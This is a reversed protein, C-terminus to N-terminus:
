QEIFEVSDVEIKDMKVLLCSQAPMAADGVGSRKEIKVSVSVKKGEVTIKKLSYNRGPYIEPHIYLLLMENAFNVAIANEKIIEGFAKDDAIIFTRTLPATEEYIYSESQEDNEDYSENPYYAKVRNERLFDDLIWQEANNFLEANYTNGCGAVGLLCCILVVIGAIRMFKKM